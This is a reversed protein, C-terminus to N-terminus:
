KCARSALDAILDVLGGLAEADLLKGVDRLVGPAIDDRLLVQLAPVLERRAEADRALFDLAAALLKRIPEPVLEASPDSPAAGLLDTLLGSTLLDYLFGGLALDPDVDGLCVLLGQLRPLGDADLLERLAQAM